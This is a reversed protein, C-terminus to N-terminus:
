LFCRNYSADTTRACVSILLRDALLRIWGKRTIFFVLRPRKRNWIFGEDFQHIAGDFGGYYLRLCFITVNCITPPM